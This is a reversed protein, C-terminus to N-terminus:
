ATFLNLNKLFCFNKKKFKKLRFKKKLYYFFYFLSSITNIIEIAHFFLQM